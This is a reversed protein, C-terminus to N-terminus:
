VRNNTSGTLCVEYIIWGLAWIDTLITRPQDLLLTPDAYLLTKSCGNSSRLGTNMSDDLIVSLGFDVLKAIGDAGILINEQSSREAGKREHSCLSPVWQSLIGM